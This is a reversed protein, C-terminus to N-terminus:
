ALTEQYLFCSSYLLFSTTSVQCVRPVDHQTDPTPQAATNFNLLHVHITQGPPARLTWPTDLSGCSTEETVVSALYQDGAAGSMVPVVVSGTQRCEAATKSVVACAIVGCVYFFTQVNEDHKLFSKLM